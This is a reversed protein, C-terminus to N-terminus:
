KNNFIYIPETKYGTKKSVQSLILYNKDILRFGVKNAIDIADNELNRYKSTNAINIIMTGNNKLAKYCNDFTSGLFNNVWHNYNPYKIYSQTNEDSYKETDFYPPSTFAVDIPEPPIYEESGVQNIIANGLFIDNLDNILNQLGVFTKTSPDVGYYTISNKSSMAGLLRGGFGASMDYVVKANFKEYIARAATPRFNSVRKTNKYICLVKRIMNDSIADGLKIRKKIADKFMIDNNFVAMPTISGNCEIEWAHPFYSWAIDLGHMTQKITKENWLDANYEILKWFKDRNKEKDYIFYPFGNKRYHQFVSEVYEEMEIDTFKQWVEEHIFIDNNM